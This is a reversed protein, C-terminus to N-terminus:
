GRFPNAAQHGVATNWPAVRWSKVVGNIV